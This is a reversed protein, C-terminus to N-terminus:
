QAIQRALSGRDIALIRVYANEGVQVRAGDCKIHIQRTFWEELAAPARVLSLGRQLLVERRAQQGKGSPRGVNRQEVRKAAAPGNDDLGRRNRRMTRGSQM